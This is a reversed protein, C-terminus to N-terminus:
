GGYGKGCKLCSEQGGPNTNGCQPCTWVGAPDPSPAGPGAMNGSSGQPPLPPLDPLDTRSSGTPQTPRSSRVPRGKDMEYSEVIPEQPLGWKARAFRASQSYPQAFVWGKKLYNRGAMRNGRISLFIVLGVIAMSVISYLANAGVDVNEQNEQVANGVAGSFMMLALMIIAWLYLRRIFLPIAFVGSFLFITWSWGIKQLKQQGTVPNELIVKM